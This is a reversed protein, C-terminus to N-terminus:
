RDLVIIVARDRPAAAMQLDRQHGDGNATFDAQFRVRISRVVQM